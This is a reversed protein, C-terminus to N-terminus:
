QTRNFATKNDKAYHQSKKGCVEDNNGAMLLSWRKGAVLINYVRM